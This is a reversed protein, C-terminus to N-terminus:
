CFINALRLKLDDIFWVVKSSSKFNMVTVKSCNYNYPYYLTGVYGVGVKRILMKWRQPVNTVVLSCYQVYNNILAM